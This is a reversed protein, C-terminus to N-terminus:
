LALTKSVQLTWFITGPQCETYGTGFLIAITRKSQFDNTKLFFMQLFGYRTAGRCAQIVSLQQSCCKTGYTTKKEAGMEFHTDFCIGSDVLLQKYIKM